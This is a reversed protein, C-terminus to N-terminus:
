DSSPRPPPKLDSLLSIRYVGTSPNGSVPVVWCWRGDELELVLDVLLRPDQTMDVEGRTIRMSSILMSSLRGTILMQDEPSVIMYSVSALWTGAAYLNGHGFLPAASEM